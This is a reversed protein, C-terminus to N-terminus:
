TMFVYYEGTNPANLAILSALSSPLPPLLQPRLDVIDFWRQHLHTATRDPKGAPGFRGPM